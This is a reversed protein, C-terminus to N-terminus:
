VPRSKGDVWQWGAVQGLDNISMAVAGDPPAPLDHWRGGRWVSAHFLDGGAVAGFDNIDRVEIASGLDVIRFRKAWAPSAVVCALLAAGVLPLYVARNMM